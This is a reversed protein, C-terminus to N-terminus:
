ILIEVSGLYKYYIHNGDTPTRDFVLRLIDDLATSKNEEPIFPFAFSLSYAADGRLILFDNILFKHLVDWAASKYEEPIYRFTSGIAYDISRRIDTDWENLSWALKNWNASKSEEPIFQFAYVLAKSADISVQLHRDNILIILDNWAASKDPLSVFEQELLRVALIKDEEYKSLSLRHIEEQDAVMYELHIICVILSSGWGVAKCHPHLKMRTSRDNPKSEIFRLEM